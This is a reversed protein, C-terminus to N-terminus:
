FPLVYGMEWRRTTLAIANTTPVPLYAYRYSVEIAGPGAAVAVGVNATDYQGGGQGGGAVSHFPSGLYSRGVSGGLNLTLRPSVHYAADVGAGVFDAPAGGSYHGGASLSVHTHGIEVRPTVLLRPLTVVSWGADAVLTSTSVIGHDGSATLGVVLPSKRPSYSVGLTLGSVNHTQAFGGASQYQNQAGGAAITANENFAAASVVVSADAASASATLAAAVSLAIVTKKTTTNM